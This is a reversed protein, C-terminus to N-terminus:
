FCLMRSWLTREPRSYVTKPGWHSFTKDLRKLVGHFNFKIAASIQVGFGWGLTALLGGDGNCAATSNAGGSAPAPATGSSHAKGTLSLTQADNSAGISLDLYPAAAITPGGIFDVNLALSPVISLRADASGTADLAQTEHSTSPPADVDHKIEQWGEGNARDYQVGLVAEKTHQARAASDVTVRGGLRLQAQLALSIAASIHVPVPGIAFNLSGLKDADILEKTWTHVDHDTEDLALGASARFDPTVLASIEATEVHWDHVSISFNVGLEIGVSSGKANLPGLHVDNLPQWRFAKLNHTHYAKSFDAHVINHVDDGIKGAVDHVQGAFHHVGHKVDDWLHGFFHHHHRLRRRSTAAPPSAPPPAPPSAMEPREMEDTTSAYATENAGDATWYRTVNAPLSNHYTANLHRFVEHLGVEEVQLSVTANEHAPTDLVAVIRHLIATFDATSRNDVGAPNLGRPNCGWWHSGTVIVGPKLPAADALSALALHLLGDLCAVDLVSEEYDLAHFKLGETLEAEFLLHLARASGAPDPMHVEQRYHLPWEDTVNPFSVLKPDVALAEFRNPQTAWNPHELESVWIPSLLLAVTVLGAVIGIAITGLFIAVPGCRGRRETLLDARVSEVQLGKSM